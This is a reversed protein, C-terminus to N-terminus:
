FNEILNELSPVYNLASWFFFSSRIRPDGRWLTAGAHTVYGDDPGVRAEKIGSPNM